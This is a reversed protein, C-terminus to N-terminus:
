GEALECTLIGSSQPKSIKQSLPILAGKGGRTSGAPISGGQRLLSPRAEFPGIIIPSAYIATMSASVMGPEWVGSDRLRYKLHIPHELAIRQKDLAESLRCLFCRLMLFGVARGHSMGGLGLVGTFGYIRRGRWVQTLALLVWSCCFCM